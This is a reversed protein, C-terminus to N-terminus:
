LCLFLMDVDGWFGGTFRVAWPNTDIMVVDVPGNSQTWVGRELKWLPHNMAATTQHLPSYCCEAALCEAETAAGPENTAACKVTPEHKKDIWYHLYGIYCVHDHNGLVSLWPVNKLSDYQWYVRAFSLDLLKRGGETSNLGM